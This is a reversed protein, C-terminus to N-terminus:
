DELLKMMLGEEKVEQALAELESYPHKSYHVFYNAMNVPLLHEAWMETPISDQKAKEIMRERLWAKHYSRMPKKIM